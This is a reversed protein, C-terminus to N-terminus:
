NVHADLMAAFAEPHRVAIDVDQFATVRLAGQSSLSYPDTLLDIGSWEGIVLDAWNGFFIASVSNGGKSLSNSVQNSVAARYSNLSGFGMAALTPDDLLGWVPSDTSAFRQTTKLRARTKSNCLYAMTSGTANDVAVESELSVLHSYTPSAGNTGGVVSGIGSIGIIGTPQTGGTGHLAALDVGISLVRALDRRVFTECDISSQLMLRRSFDVFASATKPSMTVQDFTQSTESAAVNEAIWSMTGAATQRPIAVNGVLGSLITAGLLRVASFNRLADIFSGGLMDTGVVQGATGTITL